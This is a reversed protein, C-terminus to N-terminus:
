TTRPTNKYGAKKYLLRRLRKHTLLLMFILIENFYLILKANM